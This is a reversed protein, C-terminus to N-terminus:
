RDDKETTQPDHLFGHWRRRFDSMFEAPPGSRGIRRLIEGYEELSLERWGLSQCRRIVSPNRTFSMIPALRHRESILKIIADRLQRNIGRQRYTPLVSSKTIEFVERGDATKGGLKYGIVGALRGEVLAVALQSQNLLKLTDAWAWDREQQLTWEGFWTSPYLRRLFAAGFRPLSAPFRRVLWEIPPSLMDKLQGRLRWCVIQPADYTADSELVILRKLVPLQQRLIESASAGVFFEANFVPQEDTKAM